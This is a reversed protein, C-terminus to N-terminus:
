RRGFLREIDKLKLEVYTPRGHNCQGSHPTAEMQRLLSNMEEAKLKRGARVSGHCAISSCIDSLKENLSISQGFEVLEQALDYILGKIDGEGFLDPVERVIIAGNGFQEFVLGLESFEVARAVLRDVAAEELEVVEPLLLIQRSINGSTLDSKMQEFVIREHAAHQDVIIFGDKTQSIIYTEHVQGRAAGLPFEHLDEVHGGVVEASPANFPENYNVSDLKGRPGIQYRTHVADTISRQIYSTPPFNQTHNQGKIVNLVALSSDTSSRHGERELALKISSVILGRVLSPNRFRVETKAPHVNVDIEEPSLEVFLALLPHRGSSLFNQYAGRIAGTVLKDRVSRGNVFFYQQVSTARNFTPISIYGALKIGEREAEVKISNESFNKGIISSIRILKKDVLDSELPLRLVEREGDKFFFSINPYAMALRSLMDSIHGLETRVTKLFKLRAPTAYFLDSVRVTTGGSRAAPIIDSLVGAETSLSWASESDKHRSIITFRSVSAISPLAEGRFGLTNIRSLKDESDLKSTAHRSLALKLQEGHIGDGNDAVEIRVSGGERISIDIQSSGADISNEVLEKVVSAPREIVEGAAIRNILGDPLLRISMGFDAM